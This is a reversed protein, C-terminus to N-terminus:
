PQETSTPLEAVVAALVDRTAAAVFVHARLEISTPRMVPQKVLAAAVFARFIPSADTTPALAPPPANAIQM